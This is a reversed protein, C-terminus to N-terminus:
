GQPAFQLACVLDQMHDDLGETGRGQAYELATPLIPREPHQLRLVRPLRPLCIRSTLHKLGTQAIHCFGLDVLFVFFALCPPPHVGTIGAVQSAPVPSNILNPTRSWGSWCPSVRDRSFIVFILQARHCPGTIGAVQSASAPSNSSGPPHLNRHASIAGNCELRPLLLAVQLKRKGTELLEGAEAERTAPVVPGVWWTRRNKTSTSWAPRSSRVEPSGGAEVEWLAPIVPTLWWVQSERIVIEEKVASYAPQRRCIQNELVQNYGVGQDKEEPAQPLSNSSGLLHLTCHASIMGSCELTLSLTLSQRLFLGSPPQARHSVGTIGASQSASAPPDRPRSILVMRALMTFGQGLFVFILQTHHPMGQIGAIRSASAPSNSSGPLRLNRHALIAGNCELRASSSLAFNPQARHNMGTIGASPLGLRASRSTLLNLSDQSVRHFGMELKICFILRIHHCAGPTGAVPSASAPSDSSGPLRLNCHASIAGSCDLRPLLALSPLHLKYFRSFRSVGLSLLLSACAGGMRTWAGDVVENAGGLGPREAAYAAEQLGPLPGRPSIACSRRTLKGKNLNLTQKATGERKQIRSTLPPVSRSIGTGSGGGRTFECRGDSYRPDSGQTNFDRQPQNQGPDNQWLATYAAAKAGNEYLRWRRPPDVCEPDWGEGTDAGPACHRLQVEPLAADEAQGPSEASRM